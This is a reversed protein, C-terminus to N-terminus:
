AQSMSPVGSRDDDTAATCASFTPTEHERLERRWVSRVILSQPVVLVLLYALVTGSIVGVAGMRRVLVLSIAVNVMAAVVSLVAQGRVRNLAALLCSELSMFGSVVMWLGMVLLLAGKPVAAAGAWLRIFVPGLVVLGVACCVNLALVGKMTASFTHRIWTRDQRAYAEAYAPWLAPFMLSQLLAACGALRWTVSYPTVEAPCLYHCVVLNDSSFVVLAAVQILFFSSGSDLLEKVSRLDFASIRPLLWREQMLVSLLLAFNTFTLCGLSMLYLAPM